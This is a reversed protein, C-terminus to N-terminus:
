LISLLPPQTPCLPALLALRFIARLISHSSAATQLMATTFGHSTSPQVNILSKRKFFATCILSLLSALTIRVAGLPFLSPSSHEPLYTAVIIRWQTYVNRFNLGLM